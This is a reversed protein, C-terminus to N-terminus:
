FRNCEYIKGKTFYDPCFIRTFQEYVSKLESNKLSEINKAITKFDKREIPGTLSQKPNKLFNKSVINLYGKFISPPLRLKNEFESLTKQWLLIPFNGSIVCLAHYYPKLRKPIQYCENKLKPFLKKLTKPDSDTVFVVKKYEELPIQSKGFAGLPHFGIALPTDLSGSFHVITKDKLFLTTKIFSEIESDNILVVVVDCGNLRKDISTKLKRHWIKHPIKLLSLYRSFHRSMKGNGVIGYSITNATIKKM